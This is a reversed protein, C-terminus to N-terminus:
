QIYFSSTEEKHVEGNSAEEEAVNEVRERERERRQAASSSGCCLSHQPAYFTAAFVGQLRGVVDLVKEFCPLTGVEM